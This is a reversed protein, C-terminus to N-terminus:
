HRLIPVRNEINAKEVICEFAEDCYKPRWRDFKEPITDYIKRFEM